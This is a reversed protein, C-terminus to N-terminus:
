SSSPAQGEEIEVDWVSSDFPETVVPAVFVLYNDDEYNLSANSSPPSPATKGIIVKDRTVNDLTVGDELLIEDNENTISIGVVDPFQLAVNATERASTNSQYLLALRSQKSILETLYSAQQVIQAKVSNNNIFAISISTAFALFTIG